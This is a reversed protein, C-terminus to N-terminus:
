EMQGDKTKLLNVAKNRNKAKKPGVMRAVSVPALAVAVERAKAKGDLAQRLRVANASRGVSCNARTLGHLLPEVGGRKVRRRVRDPPNGYNPSQGGSLPTRKPVTLSM